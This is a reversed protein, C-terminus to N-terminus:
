PFMVGEKKAQDIRALSPGPKPLSATPSSIFILALKLIISGKRKGKKLRAQASLVVLLGFRKYVYLGNM